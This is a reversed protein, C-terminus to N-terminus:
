GSALIAHMQQAATDLASRVSGPQKGRIGALAKGMETSWDGASLMALTKDIYTGDVNVTPELTYRGSFRTGVRRWAM